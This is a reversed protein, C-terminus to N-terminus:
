TQLPAPWDYVPVMKRLSELRPCPKLQPLGCVLLRNGSCPGLAFACAGEPGTESSVAIAPLEPDHPLTQAGKASLVIFSPAAWRRVIADAAAAPYHRARAGM